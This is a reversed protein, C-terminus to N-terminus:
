RGAAPVRLSPWIVTEGYRTLASKREPLDAGAMNILSPSRGATNDSEAEGAGRLPEQSASTRNAALMALAAHIVRVSVKYQHALDTIQRKRVRSRWEPAWVLM